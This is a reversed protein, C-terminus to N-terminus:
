HMGDPTKLSKIYVVWHNKHNSRGGPIKISLRRNWRTIQIIQSEPYIGKKDHCGALMNDHAQIVAKVANNLSSFYIWVKTEEYSITIKRQLVAINHADLDSTSKHSKIWCGRLPHGYLLSLHILNLRMLHKTEMNYVCVPIQTNVHLNEGNIALDREPQEKLFTWARNNKSERKEGIEM